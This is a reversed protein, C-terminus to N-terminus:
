GLEAKEQPSEVSPQIVIGEKRQFVYGERDTSVEVVDGEKFEGALLKRSLPSEIRRQLTRRLPRAGFQPDYGEEALKERADGTLEIRIGQEQLRGAIEKMQLDIIRQIDERSLTHFLIVEDIRNL